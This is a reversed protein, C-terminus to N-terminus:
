CWPFLLDSITILALLIAASGLFHPIAESVIAVRELLAPESPLKRIFCCLSQKQRFTYVTSLNRAGVLEPTYVASVISHTIKLSVDIWTAGHAIVHLPCGLLRIEDRLALPYCLLPTIFSSQVQDLTRSICAIRFDSIRPNLAHIIAHQGLFYTKGMKRQTLVFLLSIKATWGERELILKTNNFYEEGWILPGEVSFAAQHMRMQLEIPRNEFGELAEKIRAFRANGNLGRVQHRANNYTVEKPNALEGLFAAYSRYCSAAFRASRDFSASQNVPRIPKGFRCSESGITVNPNHASSNEKGDSRAKKNNNNNDGLAERAKRKSHKDKDKHKKRRKRKSEERSSSSAENGDIGRQIFGPLPGMSYFRGLAQRRTEAAVPEM